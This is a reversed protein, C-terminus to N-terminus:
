KPWWKEKLVNLDGKEWFEKLISYERGLYREDYYQIEPPIQKYKYAYAYEGHIHRFGVVEYWTGGKKHLQTNFPNEKPYSIKIGCDKAAFAMRGECNGMEMCTREYNEFPVFNKEFHEMMQLLTKRKALMGTTNLVSRGGNDEYGVPLFDADGLLDFLKDFNEPKELICDGNACYIYEFGSMAAIGFKLLWFYPYLVGGWTQHHPMIFTDVKDMVDRAPMVSNFDLDPREPDFYNDYALIVWYGTRSHSEVSAKLFARNGPHSTLLIGTNKLARKAWEDCELYRRLLETLDKRDQDSLNPDDLDSRRFGM